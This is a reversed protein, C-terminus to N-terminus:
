SDGTAEKLVTSLVAQFPDAQRKVQLAKVNIEDIREDKTYQNTLSITVKKCREMEDGSGIALIYDPSDGPVLRYRYPDNQLIQLDPQKGSSYNDLAFEYTFEPVNLLHGKGMVPISMLILGTKNEAKSWIEHALVWCINVFDTLSERWQDYSKFEPFLTKLRTIFPPFGNDQEVALKIVLKGRDMWIKLGAKSTRPPQGTDPLGWIAWDKASINSLSSQLQIALDVNKQWKVPLLHDQRYHRLIIDPTIRMVKELLKKDVEECPVLDIDIMGKIAAESCLEIAKSYSLQKSFWNEVEGITSKACHIISAVM